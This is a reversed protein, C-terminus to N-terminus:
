PACAWCCGVAYDRVDGLRAWREREAPSGGRCSARTDGKGMDERALDTLETMTFIAALWGKGKDHTM